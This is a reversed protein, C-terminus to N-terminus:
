LSGLRKELEEIRRLLENPDVRDGIVIQRLKDNLLTQYKAGQSLAEEKLKQVIDGDIYCNVRVKLNKRDLYSKDIKARKKNNM